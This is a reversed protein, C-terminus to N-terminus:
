PLDFFPVVPFLFDISIGRKFSVFKGFICKKVVKKLLKEQSITFLQRAQWREMPVHLCTPILSYFHNYVWRVNAGVFESINVM